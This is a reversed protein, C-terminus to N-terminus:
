NSPRRRFDLCANRCISMLWADCAADSHLRDAHLWAKLFVNQLVDDVDWPSHLFRFAAYQLKSQNSLFRETLNEKTM